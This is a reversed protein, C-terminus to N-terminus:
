QTNRVTSALLEIAGMRPYKARFAMSVVRKPSPEAFARAVMFQEMGPQLNAASLPLITVGLGTVVMQKLTEISSGQIHTPSGSDKPWQLDPLYELIQDRFCHGAGLLLLEETRLDTIKLVKKNVFPHTKPLLAVFPEEYLDIVECGAETFPLSIIIADLDGHRLKVRLNATYDEDLVLPMNPALSKMQPVLKPLLYPAITFISGLKFIGDLPDHSSKAMTKLAEAEDLITRAKQIIQLGKETPTIKSTHREFIVVSLEEELKKIGISLTPQSVCCASAARGFHQERAVAVIYKLETLTM